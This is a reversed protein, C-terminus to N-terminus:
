DMRSRHKRERDREAVFLKTQELERQTDMLIERERAASARVEREYREREETAEQWMREDNKRRSKSLQYQQGLQSLTRENAALPLRPLVEDTLTIM